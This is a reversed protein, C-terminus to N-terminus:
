ATDVQQSGTICSIPAPPVSNVGGSYGQDPEDGVEGANRLRLSARALIYRFGHMFRNALNVGRFLTLLVELTADVLPCWCIEERLHVIHTFPPM